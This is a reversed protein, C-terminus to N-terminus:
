NLSEGILLFPHRNKITINNLGHYDVCLRLEESTKKVFLILARAPSKSPRIFENALHKDIYQRLATLEVESLNYIPCYSPQREDILDIAHDHSTREPLKNADADSFVEAFDQYAQPM